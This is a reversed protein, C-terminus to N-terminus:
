PREFTRVLEVLTRLGAATGGKMTLLDPSDAWGTGAIDLHVWPTSGVFEQLFLAAAISGAQGAAGMNKMDAVESDIHKRYGAHLPMRWVPEGAREGAESVAAAFGDHNAFMGTLDKGLAVVIAGTL